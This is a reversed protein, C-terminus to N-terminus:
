TIRRFGFGGDKEILTFIFRVTAGLLDSAIGTSTTVNLVVSGLESTM